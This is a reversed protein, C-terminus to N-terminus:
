GSKKVKKYDDCDKLAHEELCFQCAHERKCEKGHKDKKDLCFGRNYNWCLPKGDADKEKLKPDKKKNNKTSTDGAGDKTHPPRQSPPNDGIRTYLRTLFVDNYLEMPNDTWSSLGDQVSPGDFLRSQFLVDYEVVFKFKFKLSLKLIRTEYSLYQARQLDTELNKVKHVHSWATFRQVCLAREVMTNVEVALHKAKINFRKEGDLSLSYGDKTDRNLKSAVLDQISDGSKSAFDYCCLWQGEEWKCNPKVLSEGSISVLSKVSAGKSKSNTDVLDRMFKDAGAIQMFDRTDMSNFLSLIQQKKDDSVSDPAAEASAETQPQHAAGLIRAFSESAGAAARPRAPEANQAAAQSTATNAVGLADAPPSSGASSNWEGLLQSLQDAKSAPSASPGGRNKNHREDDTRPLDTVGVELADLRASTQTLQSALDRLMGKLEATDDGSSELEDEFNVRRRKDRNIVVLASDHGVDDLVERLSEGFNRSRGMDAIMRDVKPQVGPDWTGHFGDQHKVERPTSVGILRRAETLQGAKAMRKGWRAGCNDKLSTSIETFMALDGVM